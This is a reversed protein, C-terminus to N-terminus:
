RGMEDHLYDDDYIERNAVDEANKGNTDRTDLAAGRHLLLHIMETCGTHAARMLPTVSNSPRNIQAGHDLLLVAADHYGRGAAIELPKLRVFDDADVNAGHSLILRMADCKNNRLAFHLLTQGAPNRLYDKKDPDAGTSFWEQIVVNNGECAAKVVNRPLPTPTTMGYFEDDDEPLVM